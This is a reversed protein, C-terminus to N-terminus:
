EPDTRLVSVRFNSTGPRTRRIMGLSMPADGPIIDWPSFGESHIPHSPEDQAASIDCNPLVYHYSHM